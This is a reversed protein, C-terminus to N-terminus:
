EETRLFATCEVGLAKALAVVHGWSPERAGTEWRWVALKKVGAREALQEQTLGAKERLKRLRPGFGEVEEM